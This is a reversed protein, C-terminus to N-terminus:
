GTGVKYLLMRNSGTDLICLGELMGNKKFGSILRASVTLDHGLGGAPGKACIKSLETKIRAVRSNGAIHGHRPAVCGGLCISVRMILGYVSFLAWLRADKRSISLTRLISM